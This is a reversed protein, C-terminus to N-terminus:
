VKTSIKRGSRSSRTPSSPALRKKQTLKPQPEPEPPPSPRDDDDKDDRAEPTFTLLQLGKEILRGSAAFVDNRLRVGHHESLQSNVSDTTKLWSLQLGKTNRMLRSIDGFDYRIKGDKTESHFPAQHVGGKNDHAIIFPLHPKGSVKYIPMEDQEEKLYQIFSLMFNNITYM